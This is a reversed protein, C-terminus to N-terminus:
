SIYVEECNREFSFFIKKLQSFEAFRINTLFLFTEDKMIDSIITHTDHTDMYYVKTTVIDQLLYGGLINSCTFNCSCLVYQCSLLFFNKLVQACM